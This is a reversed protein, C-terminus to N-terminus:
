NELRNGIWILKTCTFGNEFPLWMCQVRNIKSQLYNFCIGRTTNSFFHGLKPHNSQISWEELDGKSTYLIWYDPIFQLIVIIFKNLTYPINSPELHDPFSRVLIFRVTYSRCFFYHFWDRIRYGFLMEELDNIFHYPSLLRLWPWTLNGMWRCGFWM